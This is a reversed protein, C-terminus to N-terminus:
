YLKDLPSNNELLFNNSKFEGTSGMVELNATEVAFVCRRDRWKLKEFTTMGAQSTVAALPLGSAFVCAESIMRLRVSSYGLM